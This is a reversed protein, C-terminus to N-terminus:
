FLIFQIFIMVFVIIKHFIRVDSLPGAEDTVTLGALEGLGLTHDVGEPSVGSHNGLGPKMQRPSYGSSTLAVDGILYSTFITKIQADLTDQSKENADLFCTRM